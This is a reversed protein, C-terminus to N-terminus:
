LMYASGITLTSLSSQFLFVSVRDSDNVFSILSVLLM